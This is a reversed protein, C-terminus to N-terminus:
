VFLCISFFTIKQFKKLNKSIKPNKKLPNKLRKKSNKKKNKPNKKLNKPNKPRKKFNPIKKFNNSNKQFKKSKKKNNNSINSSFTVLTIVPSWFIGFIPWFLIILEKKALLAFFAEASPRLGGCSSSTLGRLPSYRRTIILTSPTPGM